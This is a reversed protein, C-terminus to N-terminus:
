VVKEYISSVELISLLERRLCVVFIYATLPNSKLRHNDIHRSYKYYSFDATKETQSSLCRNHIHKWCAYKICWESIFLQCVWLNMKSHSFEFKIPSYTALWIIVNEQYFFFFVTSLIICMFQSCTNNAWQNRFVLCMRVVFVFGYVCFCSVELLTFVAYFKDLM